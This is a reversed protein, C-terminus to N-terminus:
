WTTSAARSSGPKGRASRGMNINPNVSKNQREKVYADFPHEGGNTRPSNSEGSAWQRQQQVFSITVSPPRARAEVIRRAGEVSSPHGFVPPAYSSPRIDSLSPDPSLAPLTFGKEVRMKTESAIKSAVYQIVHRRRDAKAQLMLQKQKNEPKTRGPALRAQQQLTSRSRSRGVRPVDQTAEVKTLYGKHLKSATDTWRYWENPRVGAHAVDRGKLNATMDMSITSGGTIDMQKVSARAAKLIEEKRRREKRRARKEQKAAALLQQEKDREEQAIAKAKAARDAARQRIQAQTPQTANQNLEPLRADAVTANDGGVRDTPSQTQSDREHQLADQKSKLRKQLLEREQAIMALRARIQAEEAASLDGMALRRLLDAEENDLALLQNKLEIVQMELRALRSAAAAAAQEDLLSQRQAMLEAREAEIEKLRARIAAEEEATCEGSELRRLLEAMEDDLKRIDGDLHAIALATASSKDAALAAAEIAAREAAIAELRAMAAAREAPTLKGSALRRRLEAEEDDLAALKQLTAAKKRQAAERIRTEEAHQRKLDAQAKLVADRQELLHARESAIEALRAKVAAEEEPTLEGSALRRMLEAEEDNLASLKADVALLEAALQASKRDMGMMETQGAAALAAYRAQEIARREADIEKLRARVAAEEEPSLEGSALRRLLKAEEDDLASLQRDFAELQSLLQAAETANMHVDGLAGLESAKAAYAAYIGAREAAIAKLRRRVEM